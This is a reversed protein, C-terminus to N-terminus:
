IEDENFSIVTRIDYESLAERGNLEPLEIFCCICAVEGGLKKVLRTIAKLTGGTAMLDDIIVVKQGKKIADKHMQLTATGYELNYKEEIIEAPLKGPKRALQLGKGKLYAIPSSFIHGRADPSVIIDFDIDKLLENMADIALKFAEHDEIVTTIDRYMVGEKPHNPITRVYKKLYDFKM